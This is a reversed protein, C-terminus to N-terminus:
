QTWRYDAASFGAVQSFILACKTHFTPFRVEVGFWDTQSDSEVSTHLDATAQSFVWQRSSSALWAETFGKPGARAGPRHGHQNSCVFKKTRRTRFLSTDFCPWRNVPGTRRAPISFSHQSIIRALTGGPSGLLSLCLPFLKIPMVKM